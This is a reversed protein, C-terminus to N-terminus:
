DAFTGAAVPASIYEDEKPELHDSTMHVFQTTDNGVRVFRKSLPYKKHSGPAFWMCGNELTCDQMAFWMGVASLPDTYLFTSDIHPPM